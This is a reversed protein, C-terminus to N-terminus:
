FVIGAYGVFSDGPSKEYSTAYAVSEAGKSGLAKGAAIATAAAGGCCANQNDLSERILAEPDMELMTEVARRDNEYRVWDIAERGRGQPEFGYNAGYHTLDTSGLVKIRRGTEGAIGAVARGIELSKKSPPVGLPVLAAKPFFYKLFPLQLEITNDHPFSEVNFPFRDMLIRCMEEDIHMPGLPTEWAGEPMIHNPAGPPLHMGFVAVTDVGPERAICHIVNCAIGGSFVWGAHPVIGGITGGTGPCNGKADALFTEIEKECAAASRPYWSGAFKAKRIKM